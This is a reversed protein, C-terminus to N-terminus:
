SWSWQYFKRLVMFYSYATKVMQFPILLNRSMGVFLSFLLLLLVFRVKQFQIRACLINGFCKVVIPEQASQMMIPLFRQVENPFLYWDLQVIANDIEEVANSFRQDHKFKMNDSQFFLSFNANATVLSMLHSWNFRVQGLECTFLTLTITCIGFLAAEILVISNTEDHSQFQSLFLTLQDIM